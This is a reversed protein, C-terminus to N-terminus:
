AAARMGGYDLAAVVDQETLDPYEALIQQVSYGAEHFERITRVRIRTGAIVADNHNVNRIRQVVGYKTADRANLSQVASRVDSVVLDMVVETVAYQGSLVEQPRETDPEIWHVSRNLVFLRLGSWREQDDACLREKVLRLQHLSVQKRLMGLVRLAVVDKFSYVRGISADWNEGGFTPSFFDTRHWYRLQSKTVGTLREIHEEGFAAIVNSM